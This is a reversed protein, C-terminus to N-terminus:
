QGGNLKKAIRELTDDITEPAEAMHETSRIGQAAIRASLKEVTKQLDEIAKSFAEATADKKPEPDAAEPAADQVETDNVPESAPTPEEPVVEPASDTPQMTMIEAISYGAGLLFQIENKTM